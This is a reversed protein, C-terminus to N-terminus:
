TTASSPLKSATKSMRSKVFSAPRL